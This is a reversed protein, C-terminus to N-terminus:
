QITSFGGRWSCWAKCAGGVEPRVRDAEIGGAEEMMAREYALRNDYPAIWRDCWAINNPLRQLKQQQVEEATILNRDLAGWASWYQEGNALTVGGESSTNAIALAREHTMPTEQWRKLRQECETKTRLQSRRD